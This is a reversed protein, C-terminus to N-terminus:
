LCYKIDDLWEKRSIDSNDNPRDPILLERYYGLSANAEATGTNWSCDDANKEDISTSLVKPATTPIINNVTPTTDPSSDSSVSSIDDNDEEKKRINLGGSKPRINAQM